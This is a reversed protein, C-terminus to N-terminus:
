TLATSDAPLFYDFSGKPNHEGGAPCVGNGAFGNFFLGFCKGCFRWNEQNTNVATM